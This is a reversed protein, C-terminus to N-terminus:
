SHSTLSQCSFLNIEVPNAPGFAPSTNGSVLPSPDPSRPTVLPRDGVKFDGILPAIKKMAVLTHEGGPEYWRYIPLEFNTSLAFSSGV